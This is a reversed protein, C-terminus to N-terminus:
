RSCPEYGFHPFVKPNAFSKIGNTSGVHSRQESNNFYLNVDPIIRSGSHVLPWVAKFSGTSADVYGPGGLAIDGKGGGLGEGDFGVGFVTIRGFSQTDVMIEVFGTSSVSNPLFEVYIQGNLAAFDTYDEDLYYLYWTFSGFASQILDGDNLNRKKHLRINDSCKITVSNIGGNWISGGSDDQTYQCRPTSLTPDFSLLRLNAPNNSTNVPVIAGYTVQRSHDEDSASGNDNEDIRASGDLVRTIGSYTSTYLVVNGHIDLEQGVRTDVFPIIGPQSKIFFETQGTVVKLGYISWSAKPDSDPTISICYVRGAILYDHNVTIDLASLDVVLDSSTVNGVSDIANATAHPMQDWSLMQGNQLGVGKADTYNFREWLNLTGTDPPTLGPFYTDKLIQGYGQDFFDSTVGQKDTPLQNPTLSGNLTVQIRSLAAAQDNFDDIGTWGYYMFLGPPNQVMPTLGTDQVFDNYARCQGFYIQPVNTRMRLSRKISKGFRGHGDSASVTIDKYTDTGFLPLEQRFTGDLATGTASLTVGNKSAASSVTIAYPGGPGRVKGILHVTNKNTGAYINNGTIDAPDFDWTVALQFGPDAPVGNGPPAIIPAAGTPITPDTPLTILGAFLVNARLSQTSVFGNSDQYFIEFTFNNPTSFPSRKSLTIQWTGRELDFSKAVNLGAEGVTVIGVADSYGMSHSPIQGSLVIIDVGAITGTPNIAFVAPNNVPLSAAVMPTPPRLTPAAVHLTFSAPNSAQGVDDTVSANLTYDGTVIPLKVLYITGGTILSYELTSVAIPATVVVPPNGPTTSTLTISINSSQFGGGGDLVTVAAAFNGSAAIQVSPAPIAVPFVYFGSGPNGAVDLASITVSVYPNRIQDPTLDFSLGISGNELVTSKPRVPIDNAQTYHYPDNNITVTISDPAVGSTADSVTANITKTTM